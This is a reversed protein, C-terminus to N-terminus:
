VEDFGFNNNDINEKKRNNKSEVASTDKEGDAKELERYSTPTIQKDTLKIGDKIMNKVVHDLQTYEFADNEM